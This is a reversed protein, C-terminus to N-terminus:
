KLILILTDEKPVYTVLPTEKPYKKILKELIQGRKQSSKTSYVEDKVTVVYKGKYKPTAMIQFMIKEDSKRKM